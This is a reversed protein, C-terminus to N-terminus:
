VAALTPRARSRRVGGNRCSFPQMAVEATTERVDHDEMLEEVVVKIEVRVAEEMLVLTNVCRECTAFDSSTRPFRVKLKEVLGAELWNDHAVLLSQASCKQGAFGHADQSPISSRQSRAAIESRDRLCTAAIESHDRLCRVVM